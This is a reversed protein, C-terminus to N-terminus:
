STLRDGNGHRPKGCRWWWPHRSQRPRRRSRWRTPCRCWRESKALLPSRGPYVNARCSPEHTHTAAAFWRGATVTEYAIATAGSAMLAHTQEPDAALHLYTFLTQEFSLRRCEELQPEKVKVILEAEEFVVEANPAITAGAQEYDRDTIGVGAGAGTQVLVRHGRRTLENVSAPVLGVRYEHNKIETPVGVRM